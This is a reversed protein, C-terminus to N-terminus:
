DERGMDRKGELEEGLLWDERARSGCAAGGSGPCFKMPFVQTGSAGHQGAKRVMTWGCTLKRREVRPPM